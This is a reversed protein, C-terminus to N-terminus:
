VSPPGKEDAPERCCYIVDLAPRRSFVSTNLAWRADTAGSCPNSAHKGRKGRLTLVEFLKIHKNSLEQPYVSNWTCYTNHSIFQTDNHTM